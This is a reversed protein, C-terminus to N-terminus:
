MGEVEIISIEKKLHEVEELSFTSSDMYQVKSAAVSTAKRIVDEISSNEFLGAIFGGVFADGAGTDSKETVQPAIVRYIKNNHAVYSGKKGLSVVFYRIKRMLLRINQLVDENAKHGLIKVEEENPKLFDVGNKAAYLLFEGSLDCALFAETEKVASFLTKFDDLTFEPPPSGAIVVYDDKKVREKIFFLLKEKNKQSVTFGAEPMMTSGSSTESIVVFCERTWKAPEVFFCHSIARKNLIDLFEPRNQEGIFGLALNPIHYQNLVHSVHLGKGGCDFATRVVRNTKRKELEGRIFLLRDIAPNLTITYIM